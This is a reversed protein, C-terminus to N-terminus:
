YNIRFHKWKQKPWSVATASTHTFIVMKWNDAKHSSCKKYLMLSQQRVRYLTYAHETWSNDFTPRTVRHLARRHCLRVPRHLCRGRQHGREFLLHQEWDGDPVKECGPPPPPPPNVNTLRRYIYAGFKIENQHFTCSKLKTPPAAFNVSM